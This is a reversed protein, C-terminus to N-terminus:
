YEVFYLNTFESQEILKLRSDYRQLDEEGGINRHWVVYNLHNADILKTLNGNYRFHSMWENNILREQSFFASGGNLINQHHLRQWYIFIYEYKDSEGSFLSSPLHAINQSGRKKDRLVRYISDDQVIYSHNYTKMPFPVNELVFLILLLVVWIKMKPFTFFRSLAYSSFLSLIFIAIFFFRVPMRYFDAFSSYEYLIFLPAPCVPEKNIMIYSGTSFIVGLMFIIGLLIRYKNRFTYFGYIALAWISLGLYASKMQDIFNNTTDIQEFLFNNPLVRFLDYLDLSMYIINNTSIPNYYDKLFGSLVFFYIYPSIMLSTTLSAVLLQFIKKKREIADWFSYFCIVIAILAWSVFVTPAFYIQLGGLLFAKILYLFLSNNYYKVLYNVSLFCLFFFISNPNEINGLSFQSFSFFLGSLFAALRNNFISYSILSIGIANSAYILSIFVWNAWIDNLFLAITNFFIGLGFDAGYALLIHEMPYNFSGCECGTFISVLKCAFYKYMSINGVSDLDGTFSINLPFQLFFVLCCAFYFAFVGWLFSLNNSRLHM